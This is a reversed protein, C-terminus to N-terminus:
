GGAVVFDLLGLRWRVVWAVVLLVLTVSLSTNVWAPSTGRRRVLTIIAAQILIPILLPHYRLSLGLDGKVLSLLSRSLGCGPCAHGTCVRFPCLAPMGAAVTAAAILGVTAAGMLPGSRTLDNVPVPHALLVPGTPPPPLVRKSM